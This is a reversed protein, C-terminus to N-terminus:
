EILENYSHEYPIGAYAQLPTLSNPKTANPDAFLAANSAANAFAMSYTM